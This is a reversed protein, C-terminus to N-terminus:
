LYISRGRVPISDRDDLGYGTKTYVESDISMWTQLTSVFEVFTIRFFGFLFVEIIITLSSGSM